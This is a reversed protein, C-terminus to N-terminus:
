ADDVDKRAAEVAAEVAGLRSRILGEIRERLVDKFDSSTM